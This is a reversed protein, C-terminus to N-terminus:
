STVYFYFLTCFVVFILLFTDITAGFRKWEERNLTVLRVITKFNNIIHTLFLSIFAFFLLVAWVAVKRIGELVPNLIMGIGPITLKGVWPIPLGTYFGDCFISTWTRGLFETNFNIWDGLLYNCNLYPKFAQTRIGNFFLYALILLIPALIVPREWVYLIGAWLKNKM